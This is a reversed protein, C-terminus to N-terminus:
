APMDESTGDACSTDDFPISEAPDEDAPENVASAAAASMTAAPTDSAFRFGYRYALARVLNEAEEEFLTIGKTMRQHAPDWDRIDVKAKGGNWAVINVEKTWGNDKRGLVGIHEMLDFHVDDNKRQAYNQNYAMKKEKGIFNKQQKQHNDIASEIHRSLIDKIFFQRVSFASIGVNLASIGSEPVKKPFLGEFECRIFL